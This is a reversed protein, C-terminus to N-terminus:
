LNSILNEKDIFDEIENYFFDLIKKYNYSMNISVYKNHIKYNSIWNNLNIMLQNNKLTFIIKGDYCEIKIIDSKSIKIIENNNKILFYNIKSIISTDYEEKSKKKGLFLLSNLYYLQEIALPDSYYCRNNKEMSVYVNNFIILDTNLNNLIKSKLEEKLKYIEEETKNSVISSCEREDGCFVEISM